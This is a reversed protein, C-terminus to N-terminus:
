EWLCYSISGGMVGGACGRELSMGCLGPARRVGLEEGKLEEMM